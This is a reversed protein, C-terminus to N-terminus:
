FTMINKISILTRIVVDASKTYGLRLEGVTNRMRPPHADGDVARRAGVAGGVNVIQVGQYIVIMVLWGRTGEIMDCLASVSGQDHVKGLFGYLGQQRRRNSHNHSTRSDIEVRM